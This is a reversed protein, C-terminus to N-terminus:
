TIYSLDRRGKKESLSLSLLSLIPLPLALFLDREFRSLRDWVGGGRVEKKREEYKAGKKENGLGMYKYQLM